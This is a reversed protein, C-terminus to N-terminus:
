TFANFISRNSQSKQLPVEKIPYFFAYASGVNGFRDTTLTAGNVVGHNGSGSTDNANGNFEYAAVLGNTIVPVAVAVGGSMVTFAFVMSTVALINFRKM